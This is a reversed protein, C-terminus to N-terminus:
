AALSFERDNGRVMKGRADVTRKPTSRQTAVHSRNTKSGADGAKKPSSQPTVVYEIELHGAYDPQLCWELGSQELCEILDNNYRHAHVWSGFMVKVRSLANEESNGYGTIGLENIRATYGEVVEDYEIEPSVIAVITENETM